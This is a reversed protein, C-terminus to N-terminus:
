FGILLGGKVSFINIRNERFVPSYQAEVFPAIAGRPFTGGFIFNVGLNTSSAGELESSLRYVGVGVGAYPSFDQDDTEDVVFPYLTNVSLSWFTPEPADADPDVTLPDSIFYYDVTPNIVFPFEATSVRVDGGIFMDGVDGVDVGLRPGLAFSSQAQAEIPLACALLLAAAFVTLRKMARFIPIFLIVHRFITGQSSTPDVSIEQISRM